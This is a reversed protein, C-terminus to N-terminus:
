DICRCCYRYSKVCSGTQGYGYDGSGTGLVLATKTQIANYDSAVVLTNQGAM